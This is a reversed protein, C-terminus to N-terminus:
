YVSQYEHGVHVVRGVELHKSRIRNIADLAQYGEEMVAVLELSFLEDVLDRLVEPLEYSTLSM